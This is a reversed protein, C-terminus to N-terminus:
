KLRWFFIKVLLKLNKMIEKGVKFKSRGTTRKKLVAPIEAIKYGLFISKATMETMTEFGYSELHIKTIKKNVGRFFGSFCNIDSFLLTKYILNGLKSVFLRVPTVGVVRGGRVYPSAIVMDYGEEMKSLIKPILIPDYSLDADISIIKEGLANKYGMRISYGGGMKDKNTLIKLKKNKKRIKKLLENTKDTSGDDVVIIEYERKIGKAIKDLIGVTKKIVGEENHAPVVISFYM